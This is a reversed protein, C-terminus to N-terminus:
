LWHSQTTFTDPFQRKLIEALLSVLRLYWRDLLSPARARGPTHHVTASLKFVLRSALRPVRLVHSQGETVHM